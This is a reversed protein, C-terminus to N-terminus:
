ASLSLKEDKNGFVAQHLDSLEEWTAIGHKVLNEWQRLPISGRNIWSSVTSLATGLENAVAGTGGKRKVFQEVKNM